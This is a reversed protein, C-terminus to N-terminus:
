APEARELVGGILEDYTFLGNFSDLLDEAPMKLFGAGVLAIVIVGVDESTRVHWQNFAKGARQPSNFYIDAFERMATCVEAATIQHGYGYEPDLFSFSIAEMVFLFGNVNMGATTALESLWDRLISYAVNRFGPYMGRRAANWTRRITEGCEPCNLDLSLGRLNYSCKICLLDGTLIGAPM